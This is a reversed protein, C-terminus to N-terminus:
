GYTVDVSTLTADLDSYATGAHGADLTPLSDCGPFGTCVKKAHMDTYAHGGSYLRVAGNRPLNEVTVTLVKQVNEISHTDTYGNISAITRVLATDEGVVTCGSCSGHASLITSAFLFGAEPTVSATASRVQWTFTAQLKTAGKPARLDVVQRSSGSGGESRVEDATARHMDMWAAVRGSDSSAHGDPTCTTGPWCATRGNFSAGSYPATIRQPSSSPEAAAPAAFAVAVTVSVTVATSSTLVTRIASKM